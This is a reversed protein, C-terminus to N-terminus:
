LRSRVAHAILRDRVFRGNVFLYQQDARSRAAEPRGVRGALTCRGASRPWHRSGAIFDAGLVDGLRQTAADDLLPSVVARWQAVLRGEHWVAFGVDPRALAHRRV